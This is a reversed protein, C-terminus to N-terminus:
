GQAQGLAREPEQEPLPIPQVSPTLRKEAAKLRTQWKKLTTQARKVKSQWKAVMDVAKAHTKQHRLDLAQEKSPKPPVAKRRIPYDKAYAYRERWGVGWKYRTENMDRHKLGKAHGLEHAIVLALTVPDVHDRQVNLRVRVDPNQITGYYCWGGIGDGRRYKITIRGRGKLQGPNLEDQAVRYVLRMIDRTDWHTHNVIKM